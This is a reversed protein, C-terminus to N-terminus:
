ARNSRNCSSADFSLYSLTVNADSGASQFELKALGFLRPVLPRWIAVSNVRDRRAQRHTRFVMGDAVEILTNDIRVRHMFWSVWLWGVGGVLVALGLVAAGAFSDVFPIEPVDSTPNDPLERFVVYHAISDLAIEWVIAFGVGIVALVALGGRLVPTLPHLRHWSGDTYSEAVQTTQRSV